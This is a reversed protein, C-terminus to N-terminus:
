FQGSRVEFHTPKDLLPLGQTLWDAIWDIMQDTSIRPPGLLQQALASNNLWASPAEDGVVALPRNFKRAFQAAIDRVRLTESGTVNLVFPPTTAHPLARVIQELADGQWIVNVYGTTVDVPEGALVKRAIDVLVGYRTDVAYNLRILALPTGASESVARFAHERGLCSRAYEGPPDVPSSETSGGSEPSTFSYVCGTSLAVIRASRFREAVLQPMLINMRHLLEPQTSSGFKVGALFFLTGADPLHAVDEPISADASLTSIGVSRFPQEAEASSFRSVALLQEAPAGIEALARQLMWCLHFGMKGGAGIVLIPRSTQRVVEIVEDSPTSIFWDLESVSRFPPLSM